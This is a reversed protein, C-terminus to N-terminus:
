VGKPLASLKSGIDSVRALQGIVRLHASTDPILLPSEANGTTWDWEELSEVMGAAIPNEEIYRVTAQYHLEDRITWADYRREFLAGRRGHRRNFARSHGGNLVRMGDEISGLRPCVLLHIHTDMLCAAHVDLGESTVVRRFRICFEQRDVDDCFIVRDDIGYTTLHYIGDPHFDRPPRGM